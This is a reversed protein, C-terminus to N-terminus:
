EDYLIGAAFEEPSFDEMDGLEQGTGVFKCPIRLEDCIGVIAGGKASSDLKALFIGDVSLTESFNRAQLLSNQGTTADLVLITYVPIGKKDLIRRIKGLEDMLNKKTHLRGATDILIHDGKRARLAEAGDYVVAGPDGGPSHTIVDVGLREGWFRLQEGAAARFTDAGVLIVRKGEGKLRFALKAISTTKGVGNVGVFLIASSGEPINRGDTKLIRILEERLLDRAEDPSGPRRERVREVLKATTGVGVDALILREELEEWFRPSFDKGFLRHIGLKRTLRLADRIRGM